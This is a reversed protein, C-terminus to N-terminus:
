NGKETGLNLVLSISDTIRIEKSHRVVILVTSGSKEVDVDESRIEGSNISLKKMISNKIMTPSSNPIDMETLVQNVSKEIEYKEMFGLGIQLGYVSIFALVILTLLVKIAMNGKERATRLLKM